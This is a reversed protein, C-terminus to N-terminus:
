LELGAKMTVPHDLKAEVHIVPRNADIWVLVANPGSKVEISGDELRLVQSFDTKGVFPNPTMTIRVRGLKVLKGLETWSDAKAVLILLDGNQETWVNAALDGNGIPMSDNENLGLTTWTVDNISVFSSQAALAVVTGFCTLCLAHGVIHLFRRM